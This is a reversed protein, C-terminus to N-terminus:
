ESNYEIRILKKDGIRKAGSQYAIRGNTGIYNITRDKNVAYFDACHRSTPKEGDAFTYGEQEAQQLFKNGLEATKCHVYVCGNMAALEKISM